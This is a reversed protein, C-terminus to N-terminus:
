CFFWFRDGLSTFPPSHVEISRVAGANGRYQGLKKCMRMDILSMAGMSDAISCYNNCPTMAM